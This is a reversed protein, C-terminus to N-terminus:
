HPCGKRAQAVCDAKVIMLYMSRDHTVMVADSTHAKVVSTYIKIARVLFLCVAVPWLM